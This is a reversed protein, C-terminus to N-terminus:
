TVRSGPFIVRAVTAANILGSVVIVSFRGAGMDTIRWGALVLWAVAMGGDWFRVGLHFRREANVRSGSAEWEMPKRRLYDWIAFAHAWNRVRILPLVARLDYRCRHWLPLVTMSTLMAVVILGSNLPSISRPQFILLIVPILPVAFVTMATFLYYSFGSLYCSRARITMPVSWLKRALVTSTSGLAWRYQQRFFANLKGPCRGTSLLVPLYTLRWGARQVDLGTHVDEAYAILTTGGQPELAKRRYVACSGVCISSGLKARTVQIARYFLEQVAGAAQEVWAMEPTVRFYQPTQVIALSPDDFYPLTEALFDARPAFDADLIVFFEGRTRQFAYRLNGSKKMWPRDERVVYSFGFEAALVGTQPDDADDLVYAHAWGPYEQILKFVATWTNNLVNLPEGCVPLYIDVSPWTAPRWVRVKEQHAALDFGRGTFSSPISLGFAVAGTLTFIAFPWIGSNVEFMVQSASAALFGVIVATALYPLARDIYLHKERANPPPQPKRPTAHHRGAPRQGLQRVTTQATM